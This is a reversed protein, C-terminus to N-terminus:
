SAVAMLERATTGSCGVLKALATAGRGDQEVRRAVVVREAHTLPRGINKGALCREIAIEDVEDHDSAVEPTASPDDITDDDWAMPPLWGLARARNRAQNFSILERHGTPTPPKDWLQEYLVGVSRATSALVQDRNLLTMFNQPTRNLRHALKRQSYGIAVLAQLRRRTGTADTPTSPALHDPEPLVALIRRATDHRVRKSPAMNRAAEGYVLKTLAGNSVGSLKRLQRRGVGFAALQQVHARVPAADTYRERGYARQRNLWAAYVSNDAGCVDCRCKEVVYKV